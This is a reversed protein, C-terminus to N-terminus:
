QIQVIEWAAFDSSIRLKFAPVDGDTLDLHTVGYVYEDGEVGYLGVVWVSDFYLPTPLAKAVRNPYWLGAAANLFVVLTKGRAYAEGGKSRKKNIADLVLEHPDAVEDGRQRPVMIHETPFGVLTQADVLIGDGGDPDSAFSMQRDGSHNLVACILWNALMERSRMNGMRAFPKGTQLHQGNRVFPELEKLAIGMSKFRTVPQKM